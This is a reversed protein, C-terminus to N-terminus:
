VCDCVRDYEATMHEFDDDNNIVSVLADLDEGPLQYKFSVVDDDTAAGSFSTLKALIDSFTVRRDGALIKTDGGAYALHHYHPRPPPQRRPYRNTRISSVKDM